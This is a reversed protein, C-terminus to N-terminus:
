PSVEEAEAWWAPVDQVLFGGATSDNECYGPAGGSKVIENRCEDCVIGFGFFWGAATLLTHCEICILRKDERSICM